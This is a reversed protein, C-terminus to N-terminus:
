KAERDIWSHVKVLDEKLERFLAEHERITRESTQITRGLMGITNDMDQCVKMVQTFFVELRDHSSKEWNYHRVEISELRELFKSLIRDLIFYLVYIGALLAVVAGGGSVIKLVELIEM